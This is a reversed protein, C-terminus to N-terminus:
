GTSPGDYDKAVKEAEAAGLQSQSPLEDFEGLIQVVESAAMTKRLDDDVDDRNEEMLSVKEDVREEVEEKTLPTWKVAQSVKEEKYESYSEDDSM